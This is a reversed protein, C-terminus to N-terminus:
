QMDPGAVGNDSRGCSEEVSIRIINALAQVVKNMGKHRSAAFDFPRSDERGDYGADAELQLPPGKGPIEEAV